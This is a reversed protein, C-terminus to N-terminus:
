RWVFETRRNQRWCSENSQRCVPRSEGYSIIDIRGDDAGLRELYGRSSRARREGLALNYADTGREDCHGEIRINEGGFENLCDNNHELRPEQDVRIVSEDFDFYVTQFERDFCPSAVQCRNAECRYGDACDSDVTCCGPINVCANNRCEECTDGCPYSDDCGATCQNNLCYFGPRCRHSADCYNPDEECRNNRCLYGTECDADDRCQRCTGDICVTMGRNFGDSGEDTNFAACEGDNDCEPFKNKCGTFALAMIAVGTALLLMSM